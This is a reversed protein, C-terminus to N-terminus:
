DYVIKCPGRIGGIAKMLQRSRSEFRCGGRPLALVRVVCGIRSAKITPGLYFPSIVGSWSKRGRKTGRNMWSM